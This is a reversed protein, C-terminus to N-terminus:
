SRALPLRFDRFYMFRYWKCHHGLIQSFFTDGNTTTASNQLYSSNHTWFFLQQWWKCQGSSAVVQPKTKYHGPHPCGEIGGGPQASGGRTQQAECYRKHWREQGRGHDSWKPHPKVKHNGRPKSPASGVSAGSGM